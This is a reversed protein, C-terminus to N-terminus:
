LYKQKFSVTYYIRLCVGRSRPYINNKLHDLLYFVLLNIDPSTPTWAVLVSNIVSKLTEDCFVRVATLQIHSYRLGKPAITYNYNYSHLSIIGPTNYRDLTNTIWNVATLNSGSNTHFMVQLSVHGICFETFHDQTEFLVYVAVNRVCSVTLYIEARHTHTHTHTHTHVSIFKVGACM